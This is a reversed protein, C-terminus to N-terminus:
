ESIEGTVWRLPFDFHRWGNLHAKEHRLILALAEGGLTNDVYVMRITTNSCGYITSDIYQRAPNCRVQLEDPALYQVGYPQLPEFSYMAPPSLLAVIAAPFALLPMM